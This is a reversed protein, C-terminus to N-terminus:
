VRGVAFFSSSSVFIANFKQRRWKWCFHRIKKWPSPRTPGPPIYYSVFSHHRCWKNARLSYWASERNREVVVIISLEWEQGACLQGQSGETPLQQMVHGCTVQQICCLRVYTRCPFFIWHARSFPFDCVLKNSINLLGAMHHVIVVM